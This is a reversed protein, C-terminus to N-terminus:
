QEVEPRKPRLDFDTLTLIKQGIVKSLIGNYKILPLRAFSFGPHRM